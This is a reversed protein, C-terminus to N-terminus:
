TMSVEQFKKRFELPNQISPFTEITGGTGVIRITGYGLMRAFIGQDVNIAELKQLNMELTRRSLWGRKIIVRKNTIAFETTRRKIILTIFLTLFAILNCFIIWHYTTEYLVKEDKLLSNDVYNGM